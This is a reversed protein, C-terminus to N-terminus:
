LTLKGPVPRPSLKLGSGEIFLGADLLTSSLPRHSSAQQFQLFRRDCSPRLRHDPWLSPFTYSACPSVRRLTLSEHLSAPDPAAHERGSYPLTKLRRARAGGPWARLTSVLRRSWIPYCVVGAGIRSSTWFYQVRTIEPSTDHLWWAQYPHKPVDKRGTATHTILALTEDGTDGCHGSLPALM